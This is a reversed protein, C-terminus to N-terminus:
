SEAPGLMKVLENSQKPGMGTGNSKEQSRGRKVLALTKLYNNV